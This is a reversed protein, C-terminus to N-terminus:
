CHCPMVNFLLARERGSEQHHWLIRLYVCMLTVLVASISVHPIFSLIMVALAALITAKARRKFTRCTGCKTWMYIWVTFFALMCSIDAHSITMVYFRQKKLDLLGKFYFNEFIWSCIPLSLVLSAWSTLVLHFLVKPINWHKDSCPSGTIPAKAKMLVLSVTFIIVM